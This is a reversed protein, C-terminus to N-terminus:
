KERVALEFPCVDVGVEREGGEGDIEREGWRDGTKTLESPLEETDSARFRKMKRVVKLLSTTSPPEDAKATVPPTWVMTRHWRRRRIADYSGQFTPPASYTLTSPIFHRCHSTPSSPFPPHFPALSVPLFHPHHLPCYPSFYHSSRTEVSVIRRWVVRRTTSRCLPAACTSTPPTPGGRRMRRTSPSTSSGSRPGRGSPPPCITRSPCLPGHHGRESASPPLTAQCCGGRAGASDGPALLLHLHPALSTLALLTWLGISPFPLPVRM